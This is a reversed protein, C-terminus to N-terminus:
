NPVFATAYLMSGWTEDPDVLCWQEEESDINQFAAGYKGDCMLLAHGDPWTRMVQAQQGNSFEINQGDVWQM